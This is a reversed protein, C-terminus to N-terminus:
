KGRADGNMAGLKGKLEWLNGELKRKTVVM